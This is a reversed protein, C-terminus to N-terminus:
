PTRTALGRLAGHLKALYEEPLSETRELIQRAREDSHRMEHKEQDTMTMIRLTLIEDIETGDFLDGPSEQAIEPYDYLIIPSSLMSDRTGKEGALVPWTHLNECEAAADRIDEPPELLSVFEGATVGLITHTSVMAQLIAADDDNRRGGFDTLNLIRIMVRYLGEKIERSSVDVAGKLHASSRRLFGAGKGSDDKLIEITLDPLFRFAKRIAQSTGDQPRFDALTIEREVAEQSSQYLKGAIEVAAVFRPGDNSFTSLQAVQKAVVHLFRVRIQLTTGTTGQVLCETQMVCPDNGCHLPHVVGFNWRRRNKISSPRYPYLIYGEYLVANAIQDVTTM